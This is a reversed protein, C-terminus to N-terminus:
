RMVQISVDKSFLFIWIRQSQELRANLAESPYAVDSDYGSSHRRLHLIESWASDALITDYIKVNDTYAGASGLVSSIKLVM